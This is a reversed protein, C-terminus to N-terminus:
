IQMRNLEHYADVLKNRVQLALSMAMNTKEVSVMVDHLEINQGSALMQMKKGAEMNVDDLNQIAKNLTAGFSKTNSGQDRDVGEVFEAKAKLLPVEIPLSKFNIDGTDM